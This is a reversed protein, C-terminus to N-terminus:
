VTTYSEDSHDIVCYGAKYTEFTKHDMDRRDKALELLM